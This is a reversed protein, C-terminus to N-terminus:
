CFCSAHINKAPDFVYQAHACQTSARSILDFGATPYKANCPDVHANDSEFEGIPGSDSIVRDFSNVAFV